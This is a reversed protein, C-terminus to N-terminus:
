SVNKTLYYILQIALSYILLVGSVLYTGNIIFAPSLPALMLVIGMGSRLFIVPAKMKSLFHILNALFHIGLVILVYYDGLFLYIKLLLAFAVVQDGVHDYYDGFTTPKTLRAVVGDFADFLLHLSFLIVFLLHNNFLFYISLLGLIHGGTTLQNATIGKKVLLKALRALYKSRFERTHEILQFYNM